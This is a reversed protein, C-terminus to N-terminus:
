PTTQPHGTGRASGESEPLPLSGGAVEELHCIREDMRKLIRHMTAGLGGIFIMAGFFAFTGSVGGGSELFDVISVVFALIMIFLVFRNLMKIEVHTEEAATMKM